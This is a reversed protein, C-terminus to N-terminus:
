LQDSLNNSYEIHKATLDKVEQRCKNRTSVDTVRPLWYNLQNAVSSVVASTASYAFVENASQAINHPQIITSGDVVRDALLLASGFCVNSDQLQQEIISASLEKPYYQALVSYLQAYLTGNRSLNYKFDAIHSLEHVMEQDFSASPVASAVVFSLAGGQSTFIQASATEGLTDILLQSCIDGSDAKQKIIDIITGVNLSGTSTVQLHCAYAGVNAHITKEIDTPTAFLLFAPASKYSNKLQNTHWKQTAVGDEVAKALTGALTGTQPNYMKKAEGYFCVSVDQYKACVVKQNDGPSIDSVVDAVGTDGTDITSGNDGEDSNSLGSISITDPSTTTPTTNSNNDINIGAFQGGTLIQMVIILTSIIGTIAPSAVSGLTCISSIVSDFYNMVM